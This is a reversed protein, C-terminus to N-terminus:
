HRGLLRRLLADGLGRPAFSFAWAIERLGTLRGTKLGERAARMASWWAFRGNARISDRYAKVLAPDNREAANWLHLRLVQDISRCLERHRKTANVGHSRYDVLTEPSFAFDGLRSVKLVLDLDEAMRFSPHFGGAKVFADRRLMVNPMIIGTTRRAVDSESTVPVQDAPHIVRGEADISQM